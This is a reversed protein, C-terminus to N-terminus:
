LGRREVHSFLPLSSFLFDFFFGLDIDALWISSFRTLIQDWFINEDLQIRMPAWHLCWWWADTDTHANQAETQQDVSIVLASELVFDDGLYRSLPELLVNSEGLRASQPTKSSGTKHHQISCPSLKTTALTVGQIFSFFYKGCGSWWMWLTVLILGFEVTTRGLCLPLSAFPERFPLHVARRQARLDGFKFIKVKALPLLLRCSEYPLSVLDVWWFLGFFDWYQLLSLIQTSPTPVNTWIESLKTVHSWSSTALVGVEEDSLNTFATRLQHLLQPSFVGSSLSCRLVLVTAYGFGDDLVDAIKWGINVATFLGELSGLILLRM